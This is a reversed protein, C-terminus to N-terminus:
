VTQLLTRITVCIDKFCLIYEILSANNHCRKCENIFKITMHAYYFLKNKVVFICNNTSYM